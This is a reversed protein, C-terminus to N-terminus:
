CVRALGCVATVFAIEGGITPDREDRACRTGDRGPGGAVRHQARHEARGDRPDAGRGYNLGHGAHVHLGQQKAFGTCERLLDLERQRDALTKAEAYRATQIEVAKAGLLKAMEIQREDPDVFLSVEVGAKRLRTNTDVTITPTPQHYSRPRPM